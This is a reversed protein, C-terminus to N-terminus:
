GKSMESSSKSVWGGTSYSIVTSVCNTLDIALWWVEKAGKAWVGILRVRVFEDAPLHVFGFDRREGEMM